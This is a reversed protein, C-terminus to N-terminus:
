STELLSTTSWVLYVHEWLARQRCCSPANGAVHCVSLRRFYGYGIIVVTPLIGRPFARMEFTLNNFIGEQRMPLFEQDLWIILCLEKGFSLPQLPPETTLISLEHSGTLEPDTCRAGEEPRCPCQVVTHPACVYTCASCM